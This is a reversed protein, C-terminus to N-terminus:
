AAALRRVEADVADRGGGGPEVRGRADRHVGEAVEEDGIGTVVPDALDAGGASITVEEADDGEIRAAPRRVEADVADRGGGGPEVRGRADRHVGGAVEEDGIGAAVPDALDAAVAADGGDRAIPYRAEAAVATR